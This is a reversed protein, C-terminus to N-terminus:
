GQALQRKAEALRLAMLLQQPTAHHQAQFQRLFHFPSLGAVTALEDLTLRRSLHALLYDLVPAFRAARGDMAPRAIRAHRRFQGLLEFLLSDIALPESAQWLADLLATVRGASPRDERVVDAFWWGPEGTIDAVVAPEIYAMRYHWGGETEARGTHVEDPNMM